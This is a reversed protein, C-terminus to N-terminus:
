SLGRSADRGDLLVEVARRLHRISGGGWGEAIVDIEDAAMPPFWRPDLGRDAAIDAVLRHVLTPVHEPSPDPVHIIRCRDRLASPIGEISNATLLYSVHSLDISMELCPDRYSGANGRDLFGLLVDVLRGNHESSAAKEIEDLVVMPNAKRCQLIFALPVNPGSTARHSATGGFTSDAVGGCGFVTVPLGMAKGIERASWSKGTGPAGVLITPRFRAYRSQGTDALLREYVETLHPARATLSKMHAGVDGTPVLDLPIGAIAKFEIRPKHRDTKSAASPVTFQPVVVVVNVTIPPAMKPQTMPATPDFPDTDDVATPPDVTVAELAEYLDQEASKEEPSEQQVGSLARLVDSSGVVFETLWFLGEAAIRDLDPELDLGRNHLCGIAFQAWRMRAAMHVGERSLARTLERHISPLDGLCCLYLNVRGRVRPHGEFISRAHMLEQISGDRQLAELARTQSPETFYELMKACFSKRDADYSGNQFSHALRIGDLDDQFSGAEISAKMALIERLREKIGEFM